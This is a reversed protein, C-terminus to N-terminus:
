NGRDRNWTKPFREKWFRLFNTYDSGEHKVSKEAKQWFGAMKKIKESVKIKLKHDLPVTFDM